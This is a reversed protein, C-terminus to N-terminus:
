SARIRARRTPIPRDGLPPRVGARHQGDPGTAGSPGDQLPRDQENGRPTPRNWRFSM